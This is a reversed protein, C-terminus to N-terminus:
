APPAFSPQVVPPPSKMGMPQGGTEPGPMQVAEPGDIKQVLKFVGFDVRAATLLGEPSYCYIGVDVPADLAASVSDVAYCSGQAGALPQVASVALPAQRDTFVSLWQRFLRQVKPDYKRPVKEGREAVRVCGPTVPTTPTPLSCQYVGNATRVVSVGATGGLAGNPIDVRWSGDKAVTAVVSRPAGDGVDWSYLAAYRLDLGLAALGALADRADGAPEASAPPAPSGSPTAEPDGASCGVLGAALLIVTLASLRVAVNKVEDRSM